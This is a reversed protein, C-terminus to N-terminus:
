WYTIQNLSQLPQKFTRQHQPIRSKGQVQNNVSIQSFINWNWLIRVLGIAGELSSGSPLSLFKSTVIFNWGKTQAPPAQVSQAVWASLFHSLVCSFGVAGWNFATLFGEWHPIM